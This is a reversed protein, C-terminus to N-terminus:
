RLLTLEPPIESLLTVADNQKLTTVHGDLFVVNLMPGKHIDNNDDEDSLNGETADDMLLPSSVPSEVRLLNTYGAVYMYSCNPGSDFDDRNIPVSVNKDSPCIWVRLDPVGNSNAVKAIATLDEGPPLNGQNDSAYGLFAIGIGKLNNTCTARHASEIAKSVAPILISILIALIAIVVLLEILTFANNKKMLEELCNRAIYVARRASLLPFGNFLIPLMGATNPQSKLRQIAQFEILIVFIPM